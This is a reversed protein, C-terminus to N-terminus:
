ALQPNVGRGADDCAAYRESGASASLERVGSSRREGDSGSRQARGPGGNPEATASPGEWLEPLLRRATELDMPVDTFDEGNIGVLLIPGFFHVWLVKCCYPLELIRGEENCIVCLDTAFSVTEILGGVAEQLAELTNPIKEMRPEKGPEKLIVCIEPEQGCMNENTM